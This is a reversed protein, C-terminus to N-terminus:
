RRELAAGRGVPVNDQSSYPGCEWSASPLAQALANSHTGLALCLALLIAPKAGPVMQKQSKM